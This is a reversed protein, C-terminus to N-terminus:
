LSPVASVARVRFSQSSVPATTHSIGRLQAAVAAESFMCNIRLVDHVALGAIWAPPRDWQEERWKGGMKALQILFQM